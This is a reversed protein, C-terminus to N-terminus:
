GDPFEPCTREYLRGPLFRQWETPTLNRGAESCAHRTWAPLTMTWVGGHGDSGFTVLMRDQEVFATAGFPVLSPISGLRTM